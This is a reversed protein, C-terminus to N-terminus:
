IRPRRLARGAPSQIQSPSQFSAWDLWAPQPKQNRLSIGVPSQLLILCVCHVRQGGDIMGAGVPGETHEIRTADPIDESSRAFAVHDTQRAAQRQLDNLFRRARDISLLWLMEAFAAVFGKTVFIKQQKDDFDCPLNRKVCRACPKSGTCKIKQQRCRSCSFVSCILM